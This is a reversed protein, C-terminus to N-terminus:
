EYSKFIEGTFWVYFVETDPSASEPEAALSWPLKGLLPMSTTHTAQNHHKHYLSCPPGALLYSFCLQSSTFFKAGVSCFCAAIEHAIEHRRQNHARCIQVHQSTKEM